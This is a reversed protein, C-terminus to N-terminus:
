TRPRAPVRAKEPHALEYEIREDFWTPYMYFRRPFLPEVEEVGRLAQIERQRDEVDGVSALHAGVDLARPVDDATDMMARADVLHTVGPLRARIGEAVRVSDAGSSLTVLFRVVTANTYRTFDLLPLYWVARGRILREMRRTLTRTSVGAESAIARLPRKAGMRLAKLIRWDLRSPDVMPMPAQFPVCPTAEGVGELRLLLQRPRELADRSEFVYLLSVWPGVHDVASVIGPVLGLDGLIRPKAAIDEVRLSGGAFGAGFLLPSPVVEHGRLFGSREWARLRTGVTGRDVRLRRAIEAASMRPDLGGFWIVQDRSLERLIGLDLTDVCPPLACTFFGNRGRRRRQSSSDALELSDLGTQARKRGGPQNGPLCEFTGLFECTQPCSCPQM